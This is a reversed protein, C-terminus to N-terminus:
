DNIKKMIQKIRYTCDFIRREVKRWDDALPFYFNDKVDKGMDYRGDSLSNQELWDCVFQLKHRQRTFEAMMNIAGLYRSAEKSQFDDPLTTLSKGYVYYIGYDSNM